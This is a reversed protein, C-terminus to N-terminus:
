NNRNEIIFDEKENIDKHFSIINTAYYNSHPTSKQPLKRALILVGSNDELVYLKM